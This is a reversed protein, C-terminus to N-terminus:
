RTLRLKSHRTIRLWTSHRRTTHSGSRWAGPSYTEVLARFAATDGQQARRIMAEHM